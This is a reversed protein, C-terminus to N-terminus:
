VRWGPDEKKIIYIRTPMFCFKIRNQNEDREHNYKMETSIERQIRQRTM